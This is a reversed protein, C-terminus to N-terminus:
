DLDALTLGIWEVERSLIPVEKLLPSDLDSTPEAYSAPETSRWSAPPASSTSVLLALHPTRPSSIPV